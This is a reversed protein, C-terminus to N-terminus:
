TRGHSPPLFTGNMYATAPMTFDASEGASAYALRIYHNLNTIDTFLADYSLLQSETSGSSNYQHYLSRLDYQTGSGQFQVVDDVLLVFSDYTSLLASPIPNWSLVSGNMAPNAFEPLSSSGAADGQIVNVDQILGAFGWRAVGNTYMGFLLASSLLSIRTPFGCAPLLAIGIVYHHLRVGEGPVATCLGLAIGAIVYLSLYKPLYGAKRIVRVQNVGLCAVVLIIIILSALAGQQQLIDSGELRQLPVNAFVVDLLVGIWWLGLTGIGFELPLQAFAPWVYRLAIRWAAYTVFLHPGFDGAAEGVPPPFERLESVLNVHWFGVIALIFLLFLPEPRVILGIVASFITDLVYLKWRTDKCNKSPVSSFQYSVPFTTPFSFSQLGNQTSNTYNSFPGVLQLSACGGEPGLVGAHQAAACVFSDARYPTSATANLPGGGVILPVYNLQTDGVTRPNLLTTQACGSPCRFAQPSSAFPACKAGDLGCGANRLWYTSTCDMYQPTTWGHSTDVKAEFWARSVLVAFSFLWAICVTALALYHVRNTLFATWVSEMWQMSRQRPTMNSETTHPLLIEAEEDSSHWIPSPSAHPPNKWALKKTHREFFTELSHFPWWPYHRIPELGVYEPGIAWLLIRKLRSNRTEQPLAPNTLSSPSLSSNPSSTDPKDAHTDERDLGLRTQHKGPALKTDVSGCLSRPRILWFICINPLVQKTSMSSNQLRYPPYTPSAIEASYTALQAIGNAHSTLTTICSDLGRQFSATTHISNSLSKTKLPAKSAQALAEKLRGAQICATEDSAFSESSQFFDTRIPLELRRAVPCSHWRSGIWFDVRNGSLLARARRQEAVSGLLNTIQLLKEVSATTALLQIEGPCANQLMGLLPSQLEQTYQERIARNSHHQVLVNIEQDLPGHSIDSVLAILGSADLNLTLTPRLKPLPSPLPLAPYIGAVTQSCCPVDQAGFRVQIGLSQIHETITQIRWATRQDEHSQWYALQSPSPRYAHHIEPLRSFVIELIFNNPLTAAISAFETAINLLKCNTVAEDSEMPLSDPDLMSDNERFESRLSEFTIPILRVYRSQTVISVRFSRSGTSISQNLACLPGHVFMAHLTEAWFVTLFQANSTSAASDDANASQLFKIEAQVTNKFSALGPLAHEVGLLPRESRIPLSARWEAAPAVCFLVGEIEVSWLQDRESSARFEPGYKWGLSRTNWQAYCAELDRISAAVAELAARVKHAM